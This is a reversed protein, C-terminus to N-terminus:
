NVFRLYRQLADTSKPFRLESFFNQFKSSATFSKRTIHNQWPIWRTQSWFPVERQGTEIRSTSYVQLSSPYEPYSGHLQQSCKWFRGRISCMPWSQCSPGFVWAHFTFICVWIQQSMTCTKQVRFNQQCFQICINGSVTPGGICDIIRKLCISSASSLRGQWNNQQTQCLASQTITTLTIM